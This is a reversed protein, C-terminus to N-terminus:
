TRNEDSCYTEAAGAGTADGIFLGNGDQGSTDSVHSSEGHPNALLASVRVPSKSFRSVVDPPLEFLDEGPLVLLGEEHLLSPEKYCALWLSDVLRREEQAAQLDETSMARISDIRRQLISRLRSGETPTLLASDRALELLGGLAAERVGSDPSSALHIMMRPFGLKTVVDCDSNYESLLYLTLNLAKRQFRTCDSSLADRLGSYGNHLRFAVVGPRNNRILSSIAGLAKIRATIDPDFMFNLFLPEFGSAEMVSQQSIPNNQVVTTIVEAAKARIQADSNKLYNLLPFLGGVSILDSYISLKVM